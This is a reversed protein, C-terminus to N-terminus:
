GVRTQDGFGADLGLLRIFKRGLNTMRGSLNRAGQATM